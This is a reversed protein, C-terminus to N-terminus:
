SGPREAPSFLGLWTGAARTGANAPLAGLHVATATTAEDIEASPNPGVSMQARRKQPAHTRLQGMAVSSAKAVLRRKRPIASMSRNEDRLSRYRIVWRPSAALFIICRLFTDNVRPVSILGGVSAAQESVTPRGDGQRRRAQLHPRLPLRP